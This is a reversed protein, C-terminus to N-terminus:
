NSGTQRYRWTLMREVAANGIEPVPSEGAAAWNWGSGSRWADLAGEEDGGLQLRLDRCENVRTNGRTASWVTLGGLLAGLPAVAAAKMPSRTDFNEGDVLATAAVVVLGGALVGDVAVLQKSTTCTQSSTERDPHGVPQPGQVMMLSCGPLLALSVGVLAFRYINM